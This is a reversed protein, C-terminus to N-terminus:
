SILEEAAFVDPLEAISALMESHSQHEKSMKMSFIACPYLDGKKETREIEIELIQAEKSRVVETIEEITKVSDFEVALTINRKRRKYLAELPQMAELALIILVLSVIVCEFFGAGAAMGMCVSAFLGTATTLGEVQQHRVAIISGASLFGIGGIVSSAFRSADFKMGVDSVIDAWITQMLEYEYLAIIVSLSAGIATLMYTRFGATRNKKTRGYGIAGGCLMALVLRLLVSTFTFERLGDFIDIM